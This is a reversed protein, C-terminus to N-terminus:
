VYIIEREIEEFYKAKIGNKSVLDVKRKIQDELYDALDIFEIGIPKSFDVVIDVDSTTPSFDDRVISGFLGISSVNYKDVLQPKIRRIAEIVTNRVSM